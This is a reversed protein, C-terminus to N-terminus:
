RGLQSARRSVTISSTEVSAAPVPATLSGTSELVTHTGKRPKWRM